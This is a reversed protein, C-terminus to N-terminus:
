QHMKHWARATSVRFQITKGLFQKGWFYANKPSEEFPACLTCTTPIQHQLNALQALSKYITLIPHITLFVYALQYFV